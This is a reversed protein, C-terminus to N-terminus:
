VLIPILNTDEIEFKDVKQESLVGYEKGYTEFGRFTALEKNFERAMENLEEATQAFLTTSFFISIIFLAITKVLMNESVIKMSLM